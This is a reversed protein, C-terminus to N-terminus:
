HSNVREHLTEGIILKSQGGSSTEWIKWRAPHLRTPRIFPLTWKLILSPFFILKKFITPYSKNSQREELSILFARRVRIALSFHHHKWCEKGFWPFRCLKGKLQRNKQFCDYVLDTLPTGDDFSALTLQQENHNSGVTTLRLLSMLFDCWERFSCTVLSRLKWLLDFIVM